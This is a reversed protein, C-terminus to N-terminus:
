SAQFIFSLMDVAFFETGAIRVHTWQRYAKKVDEFFNDSNQCKSFSHIKARTNVWISIKPNSTFWSDLVRQHKISTAPSSNLVFWIERHNRRNFAHKKTFSHCAKCKGRTKLKKQRYPEYCLSTM